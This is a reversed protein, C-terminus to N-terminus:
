NVGDFVDRYHETKMKCSVFALSTITKAKLLASTLLKVKLKNFVAQEFIIMTISCDASSLVDLHSQLNNMM